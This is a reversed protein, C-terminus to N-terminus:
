VSEPWIVEGEKVRDTLYSTVIFGDDAVRKVVVALYYPPSERYFLYVSPDKASRRVLHPERLAQRLEAEKGAIEPHKKNILSWYERTTRVAFGLPTAESFLIERIL